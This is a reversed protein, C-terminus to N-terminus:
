RAVSAADEGISNLSCLMLSSGPLHWSLVQVRPSHPRPDRSRLGAVLVCLSPRSAAPGFAPSSRYPPSHGAAGLFQGHSHGLRAVLLAGRGTEAASLSTRGTPSLLNTIEGAPRRRVDGPSYRAVPLTGSDPPRSQPRKWTQHRLSSTPGSAMAAIRAHACSRRLRAMRRRNPEAARPWTGGQPAPRKRRGTVTPERNPPSWCGMLGSVCCAVRRGRLGLFRLAPQESVSPMLVFGSWVGISASHQRCHGLGVWANSAGYSSVSRPQQPPQTLASGVRVQGILDGLPNRPRPSAGAVALVRTPPPRSRRGRRSSGTSASAAHQRQAGHRSRQRARSVAAAAPDRHPRRFASLRPGHLPRPRADPRPPGARQPRGLPPVV